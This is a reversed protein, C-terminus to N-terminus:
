TRLGAFIGVMSSAAILLGILTIALLKGLAIDRRRIPTALLTAM